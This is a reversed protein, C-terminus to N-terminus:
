ATLLHQATHQQMHDFRRAWDLEVRVHRTPVGAEVYHRIEAGRTQVDRVRVGEVTGHDAPQGGGEPFLITDALVIYAGAEDAGRGVVTTELSRAYPDREFGSLMDM